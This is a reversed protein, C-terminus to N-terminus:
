ESTGRVNLIEEFIRLYKVRQTQGNLGGNIRKTVITYKGQDALKNLGKRTWFEAAIIWAISPDAALQPDKVLYVGILGGYFTYNARGTLMIIGRGKFLEGDGKMVNGLDLRGEYNKGSAYEELVKFGDTEHCCQALFYSLRRVTNIGYHMALKTKLDLLPLIIKANAKPLKKMIKNFIDNYLEVGDM